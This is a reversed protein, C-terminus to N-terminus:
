HPCKLQLHSVATRFVTDVATMRVTSNLLEIGRSTTSLWPRGTTNISVTGLSEFRGEKLTATIRSRNPFRGARAVIVIGRGAFSVADFQDVARLLESPPIKQWAGNTTSVAANMGQIFGDVPEGIWLATVADPGTVLQPAYANGDAIRLPETWKEGGDSSQVIFLGARSNEDLGSYAIVWMGAYRALASYLVGGTHPVLRTSWRGQQATVFLAQRGSENVVPMTFALTGESSILTSPLEAGYVTRSVHGVTIAESWQAGKLSAFRIEAPGASIHNLTDHQLWVAQWAGDEGMLARPSFFRGDKEPAASLRVSGDNDVLAVTPLTGDGLVLPLRSDTSQLLGGLLLSGNPGGVVSSPEAYVLRGDATKLEREQSADVHCATARADSREEADIRKTGSCSTVLM